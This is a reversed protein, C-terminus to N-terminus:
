DTVRFTGVENGKSDFLAAFEEGDEIRKVVGCLISAAETALKDDLRSDAITFTIRVTM